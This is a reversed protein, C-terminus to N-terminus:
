RVVDIWGAENAVLAARGDRHFAMLRPKGGPELTARVAFRQPDVVAVRGTFVLSVLLVAEDPSLALGLAATGLDLRGLRRGTTLSIADLWGSENAAYLVGINPAVVVDQVIGGVEFVRSIRLTATDCEAVVGAKFGSLYLRHGGPHVAAQPSGMPIRTTGTVRMGALSIAHVRDANTTAYLTRGDPALAAGLPHGTVAMAGIQHGARLDLIGIEEAFQNTV